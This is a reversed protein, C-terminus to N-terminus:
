PREFWQIKYMPYKINYGKKNWVSKEKTTTTETHIETDTIKTVIQFLGYRAGGSCPGYESDEFIKDGVKLKSLDHYKKKEMRNMILSGIAPM